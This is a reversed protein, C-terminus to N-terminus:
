TNHNIRKIKPSLLRALYDASYDCHPPWREFRGYKDSHYEKGDFEFVVDEHNLTGEAILCRVMYFYNENGFRFARDQSHLKERGMEQLNLELKKIQYDSAGASTDYIFRIM